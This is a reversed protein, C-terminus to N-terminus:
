HIRRWRSPSIGQRKKFWNSFHSVSSFGLEFAIRKIPLASEQLLQQALRHRRRDYYEFPTLGTNKLFLRILQNVSLGAAQALQPGNFRERIPSEDLWALARLVRPDRTEPTEIQEGCNCMVTIYEALWAHFAADIRLNESLRIHGRVVLLSNADNWKKVREVLDRAATELRPHDRAPLLLTRKRPFLPQGGRLLLHFRVSLVVARPSFRQVSNAAGLFMWSGRDARVVTAGDDVVVSGQRILWCVTQTNAHTSIQRYQPEVRRENAWLLQSACVMSDLLPVRESDIASVPMTVNHFMNTFGLLRYENDPICTAKCHLRQILIRLREM